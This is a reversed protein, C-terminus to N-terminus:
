FFKALIVRFYGFVFFNAKKNLFQKKVYHNSPKEGGAENVANQQM